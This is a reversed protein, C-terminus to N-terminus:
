PLAYTTRYIDDENRYRETAVQWLIRGAIRSELNARYCLSFDGGFQVGGAVAHIKEAKLHRLEEALLEELGRPCTAFFREM